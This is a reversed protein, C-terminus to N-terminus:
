IAEDTNFRAWTPTYVIATDYIDQRRPKQVAAYLAERGMKAAFITAEGLEYGFEESLRIALMASIGDNFRRSNIGRVWENDTSDDVEGFILYDNVVWADTEQDLDTGGATAVKYCYGVTGSGGTLSPSNASADWTGQYSFKDVSQQYMTAPPVFFEFTDTLAFESTRTESLRLDIGENPLAYLM